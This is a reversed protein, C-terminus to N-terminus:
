KWSLSCNEADRMRGKLPLNVLFLAAPLHKVMAHHPNLYCSPHEAPVWQKVQEQLPLLSSLSAELAVKPESRVCLKLSLCFFVCCVSGLSSINGLQSKLAASLSASNCFAALSM